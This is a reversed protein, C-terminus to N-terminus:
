QKTERQLHPFLFGWGTQQEQVSNICAQRLLGMQCGRNLTRNGKGSSSEVSILPEATLFQQPPKIKQTQQSLPETRGLAQTYNSIKYQWKRESLM